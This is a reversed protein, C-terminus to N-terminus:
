DGICSSDDGQQKGTQETRGDCRGGFHAQLRLCAAARADHQQTVHGVHEGVVLKLATLKGADFKARRRQGAISFDNADALHLVGKPHAADIESCWNEPTSCVSTVDPM